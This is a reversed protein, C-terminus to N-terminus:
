WHGRYFVLLVPAGRLDALRVSNGRQDSLTFDPAPAGVPPGATAPVASFVYLMAAFLGALVGNLGLVLKPTWRGPFRRVALAALGIGAAVLMWNPVATNRVGPLWAGFHLVVVFYGVIGALVLLVSGLM